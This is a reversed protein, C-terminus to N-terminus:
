SEHIVKEIVSKIQLLLSKEEPILHDFETPEEAEKHDTKIHAEVQCFNEYHKGCFTCFVSDSWKDEHCSKVHYALDSKSGSCFECLQCYLNDPACNPKNNSNEDPIPFKQHDSFSQESNKDTIPNIVELTSSTKVQSITPIDSQPITNTVTSYTPPISKSSPSISPMLCASPMSLNGTVSTTSFSSSYMTEIDLPTTLMTNTSSSKIKKGSNGKVLRKNETKLDNIESNLKKLNSELNENKQQLRYIEKEKEKVIKGRKNLDKKQNELEQDKKKLSANLTLIEENKSNFSKLASAKAKSLKKELVNVTDSLSKKDHECIETKLISNESVLLQIQDNLNQDCTEAGISLKPEPAVAEKLFRKRLCIKVSYPTESILFNLHSSRLQKLLEQCVDHLSVAMTIKNRMQLQSKM